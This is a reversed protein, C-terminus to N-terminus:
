AHDEKMSFEAKQWFIGSGFLIVKDPSFNRVIDDTLHQIQDQTIM